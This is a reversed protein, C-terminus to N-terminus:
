DYSGLPVASDSAMFHDSRADRQFFYTKVSVDAVVKHLFVPAVDLLYLEPEAARLQISEIDRATIM